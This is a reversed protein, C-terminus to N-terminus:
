LGRLYELLREGGSEPERCDPDFGERGPLAIEWEDEFGDGRPCEAQQVLILPIAILAAAVVLAVLVRLLTRM